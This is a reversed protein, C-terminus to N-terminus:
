WLLYISPLYAYSFINLMHIMLSNCTLTFNLYWVCRNSHSFDLVKVADFTSSSISWPSSENMTPPLAFFACDSQFYNPLKSYLKVTKVCSEAIKIRPGLNKGLQTSFTKEHLFRCTCTKPLQILLWWFQSFTFQHLWYPFCHPAEKFFSFTFSGYSGAIRSRSIYESFIFVRIEFSEHVGINMASSNVFLWSMSVVWTDM